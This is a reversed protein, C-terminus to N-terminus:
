YQVQITKGPTCDAPATVPRYVDFAPFSQFGHESVFRALPYTSPDECDATHMARATCKLICTLHPAGSKRTPGDATSM